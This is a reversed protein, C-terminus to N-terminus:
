EETILGRNFNKTIMDVTDQAAALMEPKKEPVTMDSISVTMAAKTSYKYGISKIDDLVEATRTAGHTNIVKELIQKLGKKGVHFDIEPLLLNEPKSRDVFGLDQPIIENFIFRGLTSEVTGSVENGEEDTKTVRVKIRSHLTVAKNEYALIAENVNKFFKGSGEANEREQTLYYIGLVMDQSPVAVPGGDSPKLLNNPSLLLFRCEAQAEVTLPLHVAMQDGDFDANFATCVLPHLKIAKGEVLIPEFAQIGLRHLTPARNLMVPHEKIVEELVDWVQSDLKEVLKKANKINQSIGRAVLEKMVFPKFLEIAMEKPLGCQYIKLEPGVVIVSRGSYDVRKGLLNQRFRGSKGKLM